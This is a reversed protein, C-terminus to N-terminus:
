HVRWRAGFFTGLRNEGEQKDTAPSLSATRAEFCHQSRM